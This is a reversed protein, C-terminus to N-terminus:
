IWAFVEEIGRRIGVAQTVQCDMILSHRNDMLVHGRYSPLALHTNFKRALLADPDTKLPLDQHQVNRQPFRGQHGSRAKKPSVLVSELAQHRHHRALRCNPLRGGVYNVGPLCRRLNKLVLGSSSIIYYWLTRNAICLDFSMGVHDADEVIVSRINPPYDNTSCCSSHCSFRRLKKESVVMALIGSLPVALPLRHHDTRAAPLFCASFRVLEEM